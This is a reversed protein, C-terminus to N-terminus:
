PNAWQNGRFPQSAEYLHLRAEIQAVSNTIGAARVLEIAKQATRHAEAYQGAEAHAAALTDLVNANTGGTLQNAQTALRVAEAGDRLKSDTQTALMWALPNLAEVWNPKLRVAERLHQIAEGAKLEEALVLGLRHHAEAYGPQSQVAAGFWRVAEARQGQKLLVEALQYQTPGFDPKLKLAAAFEAVAEQTRGLTALAIGLNHHAEISDPKAHLTARYHTVADSVGGQAFAVNGLNYHADPQGPNLRLSTEFCKVAEALRGQRAFAMGLNNHADVYNPNLELAQRLHMLAEDTKGQNMLVGGLNNHASASGPHLRLAERFHFIAEETKGQQYLVVGLNNHADVYNPNLRLATLYCNLEEVQNKTAMGLNNYAPWARRNKALTDRWLTEPGKFVVARNWTLVSLTAVVVGASLRFPLSSSQLRSRVGGVVLAIVGPLALYQLHDAARAYVFFSMDFFGLVPLLTVFFCGLGVLVAGGWARRFWWCVGIALWWAVVPFYAWVWGPDVAWRPYIMNLKVPLLAKGLYFWVAWTGGLLRVGLGDRQYLSGSMARHTQFWVTILGLILALVFFPALRWL